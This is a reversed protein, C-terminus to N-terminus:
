EDTCEFPWTKGVLLDRDHSVIVVALFPQRVYVIFQSLTESVQFEKLEELRRNWTKPDSNPHHDGRLSEDAWPRDWTFGLAELKRIRVKNLCCKAGKLWKLHYFNKQAVVWQRFIREDNSLNDTAAAESGTASAEKDGEESKGGDDDAKAADSEDNDDDDDDDGNLSKSQNELKEMKVKITDPLPVNVHGNKRRFEVLMKFHDDWSKNTDRVWFVFGLDSLLKHKNEELENRHALKRQRHCWEGLQPNEPHKRKLQCHGSNQLQHQIDFTLLVISYLDEM